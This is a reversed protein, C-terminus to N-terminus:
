MLGVKTGNGPLKARYLAFPRVRRETGPYHGPTRWLQNETFYMWGDTAVAMSDTWGIRPDRAFVSVMATAPDFINIANQGFNGTYILGNSDTELGDSTGVQGHNNIAGQALLESTPGNDLLRATPISYLYRSGVATWYLTEGDASITIGDTGDSGSVIRGTGTVSYVPEGWIVPISLFEPRVM